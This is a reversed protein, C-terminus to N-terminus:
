LHFLRAPSRDSRSNNRQIVEFCMRGNHYPCKWPEVVAKKGISGDPNRESHWEGGNRVDIINDRIYLWLREMTKLYNKEGYKQYANLFGVVGEAQVWWVRKKDINNGVRELDMAGSKEDIAISFIKNVIIRNMKSIKEFLLLENENLSSKETIVECARDILWTAEIDHGYSHIDGLVNMKKDFFVFLKNETKDYIKDYILNLLFFLSERILENGSVRYLETYAELLHLVTNMTKEAQIGNESLADNEATKWDRTMAEVYAYDDRGKKEITNFIEFALDLAKKDGSADFYSALAYIFFAQCYIHKMTDLPKGNRSVLWYVGGYERDLCYNTLFDYASKAMTLCESDGLVMYANSYFWLIRSHLIVGKDANQVLKLGSDMYGYFGGYEKDCLSNWFPIIHSVLEKKIEETYM